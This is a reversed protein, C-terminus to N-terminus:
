ISYTAIASPFYVCATIHDIIKRWRLVRAVFLRRNNLSHLRGHVVTCTINPFDTFKMRGESISDFADDLVLGTRFANSINDHTFHVLDPDARELIIAMNGAHDTSSM